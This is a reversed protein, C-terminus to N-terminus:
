CNKYFFVSHMPLGDTISVIKKYTEVFAEPMKGKSTFAAFTRSPIEDIELDSDTVEQGEYEFGIGYPFKNDEIYDIARQIGKVWHM